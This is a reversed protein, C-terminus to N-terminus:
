CTLENRINYDLISGWGFNLQAARKPRVGRVHRLGTCRGQEATPLRKLLPSSSGAMVVEASKYTM